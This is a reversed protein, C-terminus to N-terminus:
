LKAYLARLKEEIEAIAVPNLKKKTRNKEFILQSEWKEIELLLEEETLPFAGVSTAKPQTAAKNRQLAHGIRQYYQEMSHIPELKGSEILFLSGGVNELFARDHSVIICTARSTRLLDELQECGLFDIHNTPEDLILLNPEQLKLSLLKLRAREGGSLSRVAVSHRQYAFGAKVLEAVLKDRHLDPVHKELNSFLSADFDFSLLEQDYYGVKVQPNFKIQGHAQDREDYAKILTKLLTTKGSGNVGQIFIKEGVKIALDNIHYLLKEDPTKIPMKEITLAVKANINGDNLQLTAQRETLVETMTTELAEARREINKARIALKDNFVAWQAVRKASERLRAVERKEEDRRQRSAENMADLDKRAASFPVTFHHAKQAFLFLTEDTCRDLLMRDHSIILYAGRIQELLKEFRVIALSDLHNTPEDFIAVDPEAAIIGAFRCWNLQGGSLEKLKRQWLSKDLHALTLAQEVLYGSTANDVFGAVMRTVYDYVRVETEHPALLQDALCIKLGRKAVVQGFQPTLQGTMIKLLTSKGVGNSGAIGLKQQPNITFNIGDFLLKDGVSHGIDKLSVLM